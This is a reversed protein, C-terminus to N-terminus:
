CVLRASVEGDSREEGSGARQLVRFVGVESSDAVVPRYEGEAMCIDCVFRGDDQADSM